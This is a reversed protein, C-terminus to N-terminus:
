FPGRAPCLLSGGFSTPLGTIHRDRSSGTAELIRLVEGWSIVRFGPCPEEDEGPLVLSTAEPCKSTRGPMTENPRMQPQSPTLPRPLSLDSLFLPNGVTGGILSLPKRRHVETERDRFYNGPHSTAVFASALVKIRLLHAQATIDEVLWARCRHFPVVHKDECTPNLGFSLYFYIFLGGKKPILM